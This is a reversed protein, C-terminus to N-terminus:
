KNTRNDILEIERKELLNTDVIDGNYDCNNVIITSGKGNTGFIIMPKPTTGAIFTGDDITITSKATVIIPASSGLNKFSGRKITITACGEVYIAATVGSINGDYVTLSSGDKMVIASHTITQKPFSASIEGTKATSTDIVRLHAGREVVIKNEIMSSNSVKYGNLDLIVDSAIRITITTPAAGGNEPLDRLMIIYTPTDGKKASAELAEAFSIYKKSEDDSEYDVMYVEAGNSMDLKSKDFLVFGYYSDPEAPEPKDPVTTEGGETSEGGGTDGGGETNGGNDGGGETNGGNDDDESFDFLNGDAGLISGVHAGDEIVLTFDEGTIMMNGNEVVLSISEQKESLLRVIEVSAGSKIVANGSYISFDALTEYISLKNKDNIEGNRLSAKDAEGLLTIEDSSNSIDTVTEKGNARILISKSEEDEDTYLISKINLNDGVDVGVSVHIDEGVFGDALYISTASDDPIENVVQWILTKNEPLADGDHTYVTNFEEDVVAVRNDEQDWSLALGGDSMFRDIDIGNEIMARTADYMSTPKGNSAEDVALLKNISQAMQTRASIRAKKVVGAFTPIAVGALIAIVAIVIVLELITFGRRKSNRKIPKFINEM